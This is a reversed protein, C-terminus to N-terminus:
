RILIGEAQDPHRALWSTIFPCTVIITLGAARSEDLAHRARGGFTGM